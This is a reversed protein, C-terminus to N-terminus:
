LTSLFYMSNFGERLGALVMEVSIGLFIGPFKGGNALVRLTSALTLVNRPIDTSFLFFFLM